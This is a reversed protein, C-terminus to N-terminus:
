AKGGCFPCYSIPLHPIPFELKAKYPDSVYCILNGTESNRCVWGNRKCEHKKKPIEPLFAWADPIKQFRMDSYQSVWGNIPDWQGVEPTDGWLLVIKKDKPATSVDKWESM